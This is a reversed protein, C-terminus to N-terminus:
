KLLDSFIRELHGNVFPRNGSEVHRLMAQIDSDDLPIMYGRGDRVTDRCRAVARARDTLTRCLLLGLWGRPGFRGALQDFAPNTPDDTYNKCEVIIKPAPKLVAQPFRQFLGGQLTNVYTVDIIKRGDHIIDERMPMALNPYFLFSLLGIIFRHYADADAPGSPIRGLEVILQSALMREYRVPILEPVRTRDGAALLDVPNRGRPEHLDAHAELPTRKRLRAGYEYRARPTAFAPPEMKQM